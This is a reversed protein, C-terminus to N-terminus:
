AAAAAATPERQGINSDLKVTASGYAGEFFDGIVLGGMHPAVIWTQKREGGNAGSVTLTGTVKWGEIIEGCADVRDRKEVEGDFRWTQQTSPDVAVSSYNEGTQVDLPLILLGTTPMFARETRNGNKDQYQVSKIVVGREPEGSRPPDEDNVPNFAQVATADSDVKYTTIVVNDGGLEPSVVEYSFIQRAEDQGPVTIEEVNRVLREELGERTVTSTQGGFTPMTVTGNRKWRYTGEKPRIGEPINLPASEAPFANLAAAPCVEAVPTNNRLQPRPIERKPTSTFIQEPLLDAVPEAQVADPNPTVAGPTVEEKAIDKVGFVIDANLPDIAVGPDNPRVCAGALVTTLAVVVMTRRAGNHLLSSM